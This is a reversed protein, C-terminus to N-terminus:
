VPKITATSATPGRAAPKAQPTPTAWRSTTSPKPSAPAPAGSPNSPPTTPAPTSNATATKTSTSVYSTKNCLWSISPTSPCRTACSSTAGTTASAPADTVARDVTTVVPEGFPRRVTREVTTVLRLRLETDHGGRGVRTSGEQILVKFHQPYEYDYSGSDDLRRDSFNSEFTVYPEGGDLVGDGDADVWARMQHHRGIASDPIRLVHTSRGDRTFKAPALSASTRCGAATSVSATTQTAGTGTICYRSAAISGTPGAIVKLATPYGVASTLDAGCTLHVDVFVHHWQSYGPQEIDFLWAVDGRVIAGDCATSPAATSPADQIQGQATATALSAGVPNSLSLTFTETGETISDDVVPVSVTAYRAGAPITVTGSATTYNVSETVTDATTTYSVSITPAPVPPDSDAVPPTVAITFVVAGDGESARAATVELSAPSCYPLDADLSVTSVSSLAAPVCGSLDNNELSLWRLNTLGGMEAPIRGWPSNNDLNLRTLNTLNGIEAPITGSLNNNDLSFRIVNTLNGIEAPITGSFSNNDLHLNYLNTLNGIEAPISGSLSNGYLTLSTLSALGFIEAPVTGSLSNTDLHLVGLNTLSGIEAPISGSM